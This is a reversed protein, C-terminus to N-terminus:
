YRQYREVIMAGISMSPCKKGRKLLFKSESWAQAVTQAPWKLAPFGERTPLQLEVSLAFVNEVLVLVQRAVVWGAVEAWVEEWVQVAGESLGLEM